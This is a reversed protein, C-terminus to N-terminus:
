GQYTAPADYSIRVPPSNKVNFYSPGQARKAYGDETKIRFSLLDSAPFYGGESIKPVFIVDSTLNASRIHKVVAATTTNSCNGNEDKIDSGYMAIFRVDSFTKSLFGPLAANHAADEDFHACAVRNQEVVILGVCPGLGTTYVCSFNSSEVNSLIVMEGQPAFCGSNVGVNTVPNKKGHARVQKMSSKLNFQMPVHMGPKVILVM